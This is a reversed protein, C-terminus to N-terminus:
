PLLKRGEKRGKGGLEFHDLYPCFLFGGKKWKLSQSHSAAATSLFIYIHTHTCTFVYRREFVCFVTKIRIDATHTRTSYRRRGLFNSQFHLSEKQKHRTYPPIYSYVHKSGVCCFCTLIIIVAEPAKAIVYDYMRVAETGDGKKGQSKAVPVSPPFSSSPVMGTGEWCWWCWLFFFSGDRLRRRQDFSYIVGRECCEGRRRDGGGCVSLRLRGCVSATQFLSSLSLPSPSLSLLSLSLSLPSLLSCAPDSRVRPARPTRSLSSLRFQSDRERKRVSFSPRVFFARPVSHTDPRRRLLPRTCQLLSLLLLLMLVRSRSHLTSAEAARSFCSPLSELSLSFPLPSLRLLLFLGLVMFRM